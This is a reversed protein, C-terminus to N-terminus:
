ASDQSIADKHMYDIFRRETTARNPMDEKSEEGMEVGHRTGNCLGGQLEGIKM